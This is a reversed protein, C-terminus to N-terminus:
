YTGQTNLIGGPRQQKVLFQGFQAELAKTIQQSIMEGTAAANGADGSGQSGSSANVNVVVSPAYVSTSGGVNTAGSVAQSSVTGGSNIFDLIPKFRRTAEANIIYEGNSVKVVNSDSIGSGSGQIYGGGAFGQVLGGNKFGLSAFLPQIIAQRIAIRALDAIISDVLGAFDAKGTSVFDVLADEMGTFANVVANESLSAMDYLSDKLGLIGRKLGGELSRDTELVKLNLRTMALNFEDTSIKGQSLLANLDGVTQNYNVSAGKIDELIKKQRKLADELAKQAAPDPVGKNSGGPIGQGLLDVGSKKDAFYGEIAAKSGGNKVAEDFGMTFADGMTKGRLSFDIDINSLLSDKYGQAVPLSEIFKFAEIKLDNFLIKFINRVTYAYGRIVDILTTFADAVNVGAITTDKMMQYIEKRFLVLATIAGLVITVILVLPNVLLTANLLAVAQSVNRVTSALQIFAVINGVIATTVTAIASANMAIRYTVWAAAAIGLAKAVLDMNNALAILAGTVATSIGYAKDLEGVYKTISNGVVIFADSITPVSKAFKENLEEKANKFALIIKDSTITGEEGMKRLEGRTVGLQKAIVDGVAPIQELVSRLEDGRLTGSALGQSFQIIGATAEAGSAGSLKVAQNLSETFQLVDKQTLGLDRGALAFRRYAEANDNLSSRTRQSIEYLENTVQGLQEQSSTVQKLANQMSTYGDLTNKITNLSLGVGIAGLAKNLTFISDRTSLASQGIRAVNQGAEKSGKERVVIDINEQTM